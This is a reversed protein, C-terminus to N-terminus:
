NITIIQQWAELKRTFSYSANAPSTSPLTTFDLLRFQGEGSGRTGSPDGERQLLPFPSPFHRRFSQASKAGNFFVQTIHPHAAFFSAFDNATEDTISSDLSGPRVCCQLTDWLAIHNDKLIELRQTYPLSPAAGFLEGMIKWFHNQPHAYYQQAQLSRVGPMSGLILIKADARSVPPFSSVFSM